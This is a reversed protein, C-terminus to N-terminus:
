PLEGRADYADYGPRIIALKARTIEMLPQWARAHDIRETAIAHSVRANLELVQDRLSVASLSAADIGLLACLLERERRLQAEGLAVERELIRVLNAAVRTRYAAPGDLAPILAEELFRGVTDLLEHATPRDQMALITDTRDTARAPDAGRMRVM